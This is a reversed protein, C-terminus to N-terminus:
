MMAVHRDDDDDDAYKNLKKQYYDSHAVCVCVACLFCSRWEDVTCIEERGVRLVVCTVETERSETDTVELGNIENRRKVCM